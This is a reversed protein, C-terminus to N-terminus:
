SYNQADEAHIIRFNTFIKIGDNEPKDRHFYKMTQSFSSPFNFSKVVNDEKFSTLDDDSKVDHCSHKVIAASPTILVVVTIIKQLKKKSIEQCFTSREQELILYYCKLNPANIM